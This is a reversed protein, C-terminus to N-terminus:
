VRWRLGLWWRTKGELTGDLVRAAGVTAHFGPLRLLPFPETEFTAEVGTVRVSSGDAIHQRLFLTAPLQPVTVQLERGEYRRATVTAEPLAPDLVQDAYASAPLISGAIGGVGLRTNGGATDRQWRGSVRYGGQNRVAVLAMVRTHSLEEGREAAVLIQQGFRFRGAAQGRALSATVFGFSQEGALVGGDVTLRTLPFRRTWSGRAELGTEDDRHFLHASVAVPWGRWVAALAGSRASSVVALADFRGVVDGVRVGSEGERRGPAINGGLIPQMEPRGFGYARAPPLPRSEFAPPAAIVPPLAPVLLVGDSHVREQATARSEIVRVAFGDPELSMYFLRGDPSAAPEAAGGITRTVPVGAGGAEFRHLDIFGRDYVSAFLTDEATRSWEPFAGSADPPLLVRRERGSVVERVVLRWTGEDHVAFAIADGDPSVRPHSIVRGLSPESIATVVGTNLDVRVLQVFGFRQRVAVASLGDPFPDADAVDALHTVRRASKEAPTWLFLDKHLVGDADPQRRVFLIGEGDPMWRPSEMNGGDPAQYRYLAKRPLPRERLPAVDDPDRKLMEDIRRQFAEEEERAEATSWVVIEAPTDRQRVVLALRKGDPSVAPSSSEHTTQQWLAGEKVEGRRELAIASATVEAVFRGYLSAPSEGFVGEFAGEFTRRERATVRRWLRRLSDPGRRQELWELFASGALYAMSMGLFRRDSDLQSYSPLRGAIAWRRLIAARVTSSPRGSGTLRGEITTAYGESVWRPVRGITGVPIVRELLGRAPNRSPRVIHVMHAIEHVLLLDMWDHYEAILEEPGPAETFLVIRPTDLLPFTLGNPDAIPNGVLVDTKVAPAFGVEAVVAERISEIRAAARQAWAEYPKPYHVRFHTTEVTLWEESPAQGHIAVTAFLVALVVFSRM